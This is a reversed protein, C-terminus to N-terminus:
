FTQPVARGEHALRLHLAIAGSAVAAWACWISAFGNTALRALVIAAVLNVAGFLTVHPYGSFVLSGCTAVIYLGVVLAGASLSIGYEIHHNGLSATVPGRIMAVLLTVSVAAGLVLFPAMMWRRRGMPEIAMVAAPVFVPLVGFAFILYAWLAVRGAEAPVKGQLGWWVFTEVLQHAALLLPLAALPVERAHRAHRVTDIGIAGIAIGGVLDAQPSFCM